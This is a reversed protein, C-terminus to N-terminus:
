KEQPPLPRSDGSGTSSASGGSKHMKMKHRRYSNAAGSGEEEVEPSLPRKKINTLDLV